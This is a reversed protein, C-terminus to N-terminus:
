VRFLKVFNEFERGVIKGGERIVNKYYAIKEKAKEPNKVQNRELLTQFNRELIKIVQEREEPTAQSYDAVRESVKGNKQM